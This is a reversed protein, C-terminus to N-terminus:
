VGESHVAALFHKFESTTVEVPAAVPNGTLEDSLQALVLSQFLDGRRRPDDPEDRAAGHDDGLSHAGM